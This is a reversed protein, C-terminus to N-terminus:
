TSPVDQKVERWSTVAAIPALAWCGPRLIAALKQAYNVYVGITTRSLDPLGSVIIRLIIATITEGKWLFAMELIRDWTWCLNKSPIGGLIMLLEEGVTTKGIRGTQTIAVNGSISGLTM